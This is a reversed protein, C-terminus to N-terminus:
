KKLNEIEQEKEKGEAVGIIHFYDNRLNDWLTSVRNANKQIKKM